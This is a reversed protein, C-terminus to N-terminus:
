KSLNRYYTRRTLGSETFRKKLAFGNKEYFSVASKNGEEVILEYNYIQKEILFSHFSDLMKMGIGQKRIEDDVAIYVLQVNCESKTTETTNFLMRFFIFLMTPKCAVAMICKYIFYFPRKIILLRYLNNVAISGFVFGKLSNDVFYGIAFNDPSRLSINYFNAIFNCDFSQLFSRLCKKHLSAIESVDDPSLKRIM